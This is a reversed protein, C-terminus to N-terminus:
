DGQHRELREGEAQRLAASAAGARELIAAADSTVISVLDRPKVGAAGPGKEERVRSLREKQPAKHRM